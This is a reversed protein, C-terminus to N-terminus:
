KTNHHTWNQLQRKKNKKIILALNQFKVRFNPTVERIVFIVSYLILIFIDIM